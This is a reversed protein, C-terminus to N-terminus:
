LGFIKQLCQWLTVKLSKDAAIEDLGPAWMFKCDQYTQVQFAPFHIPLSLVTPTLGFLLIVPTSYKLNLSSLGGAVANDSDSLLAIETPEIKCAKLINQLFVYQQDTKKLAEGHTLVISRVKVPSSSDPQSTTIKEAILVDKYLGSLIASPLFIREQQNM